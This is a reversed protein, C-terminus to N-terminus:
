SVFLSIGNHFLVKDEMSFPRPWDDTTNSVSLIAGLEPTVCANQQCHLNVGAAAAAASHCACIVLDASM